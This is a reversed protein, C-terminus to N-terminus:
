YLVFQTLNLCFDNNFKNDYALSFFFLPRYANSYLAVISYLWWWGFRVVLLVM